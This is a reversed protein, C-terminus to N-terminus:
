PIHITAHRRDRCACRWRPCLHDNDLERTPSQQTYRGVPVVAIKKSWAKTYVSRPKRQTESTKGVRGTSKTSGVLRNGNRRIRCLEIANTHMCAIGHRHGRIRTRGPPLGSRIWFIPTAWPRTIRMGGLIRMFFVVLHYLLFLICWERETARRKKSRTARDEGPSLSVILM